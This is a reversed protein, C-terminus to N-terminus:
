KVRIRKEPMVEDRASKLTNICFGESWKEVDTHREELWQDCGSETETRWTAWDVKKLSRVLKSSLIWYFLYPTYKIIISPYKEIIRWLFMHQQYENSDGRM